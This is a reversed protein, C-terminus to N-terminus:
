QAKQLACSPRWPESSFPWSAILTDRQRPSFKACAGSWFAASATTPSWHWPARPLEQRSRGLIRPPAAPRRARCAAPSLQRSRQDRGPCRDTRAGSQPWGGDGSGRRPEAVRGSLAARARSSRLAPRDAALRYRRPASARCHVAAIAAQLAYPGAAGRFAEEVLPLAEAIQAHNWRSRDQEELIVLDGAEDLRADRRADHLLM